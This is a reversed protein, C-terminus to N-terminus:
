RSESALLELRRPAERSGFVRAKEYWHRALAPDSVPGYVRLERLVIPDYTSALAFAARPDQAEAARLLALRAGAIDGTEVLEQGRKLLLAIEEDGLQRQAATPQPTKPAAAPVELRISKRDVLSGDILRLAASLQMTGSFGDPPRIHTSALEAAPVLWAIDGWADGASFTTGPLYDSFIVIAGDSHGELRWGVLIGGDRVAASGDLVLRPPPVVPQAPVPVLAPASPSLTVLQTLRNFVAAKLDNPSQLVGLALPVAVAAIAIVVASRGVMAAERAPPPPVIEPQLRRDRDKRMRAHAAAIERELQDLDTPSLRVVEEILPLEPTEQPHVRAAAAAIDRELRDLDSPEVAAPAAEAPTPPALPELAQGPEANPARAETSPTADAAPETRQIPTSM